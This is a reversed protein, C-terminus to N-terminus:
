ARRRQRGHRSYVYHNAADFEVTGTLTTVATIDQTITKGTFGTKPTATVSGRYYTKGGSEYTSGGDNVTLTYNAPLTVSYYVKETLDTDASLTLNNGDKIAVGDSPTLTHEGAAYYSKDSIDIADQTVTVCAPLTVEYVRTNNEATGEENYGVAM